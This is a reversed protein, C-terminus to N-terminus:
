DNNSDKGEANCFSVFEDLGSCHRYIIRLTIRLYNVDYSGLMEGMDTYM